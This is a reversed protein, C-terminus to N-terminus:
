LVRGVKSAFESVLYIGFNDEFAAWQLLCTGCLLMSGGHRM